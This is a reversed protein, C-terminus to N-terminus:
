QLDNQFNISEGDNFVKEKRQGNIIYAVTVSKRVYPAPDHGPSLTGGGLKMTAEGSALVKQVTKTVDLLRKTKPDGFKVSSITLQMPATTRTATSAVGLQQKAVKLENDVALAADLKAERTYQAKLSELSRVYTSFVPASVRQLSRLHEERLKLLETPDLPSTDQALSLVGMASFALFGLILRNMTHDRKLHTALM